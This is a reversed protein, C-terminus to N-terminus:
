SEENAKANNYNKNAIFLGIGAGTLAVGMYGSILRSSNPISNFVADASFVLGGVLTSIALFKTIQEVKNNDPSLTEPDVEDIIEGNKKM